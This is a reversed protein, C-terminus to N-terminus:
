TVPPDMLPPVNVNVLSPRASTVIAPNSCIPVVDVVANAPLVVKNCSPVVLVVANAPSM